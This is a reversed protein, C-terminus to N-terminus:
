ESEIYPMSIRVYAGGLNACKSKAYGVCETNLTRTNIDSTVEVNYGYMAANKLINTDIFGTGGSGGPRVSGTCPPCGFGCSYWYNAGAYGGFYGGGGTGGYWHENPADGGHGFLNNNRGRNEDYYGGGNKGSAANYVAEVDKDPCDKHLGSEDEWVTCWIGSQQDVGPACSAGGGGGGAAIIIESKNDVYDELYGSGIKKWAVFAGHGGLEGWNGSGLDAGPKALGAYLTDGAKLDIEGYSYGGYGGHPAISSTGDHGKEGWVEIRYTGTKDVPIVCGNDEEFSCIESYTISPSPGDNVVGYFIAIDDVTTDKVGKKHTPFSLSYYEYDLFIQDNQVFDTDFWVNPDEITYSITEGDYIVKFTDRTVNINMTKGNCISLKIIAEESTSESTDSKCVGYDSTIKNVKNMIETRTVYIERIYNTSKEEKQVDIILKFLFIVVVAVLIICILLELLTFGKKDKM